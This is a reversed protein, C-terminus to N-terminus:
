LEALKWGAASGSGLHCRKPPEKIEDAFILVVCREGIPKCDECVYKFIVM